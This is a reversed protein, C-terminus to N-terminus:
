DMLKTKALHIVLKINEESCVPTVQVEKNDHVLIFINDKEIITYENSENNFSEQITQICNKCCTSIIFAKNLKPHHICSSLQTKHKMVPCLQHTEQILQIINKNEFNENSKESNNYVYYIIFLVFIIGLILIINSENNNDNLPSSLPSEDIELHLDNTNTNINM